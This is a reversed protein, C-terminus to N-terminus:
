GTRDAKQQTFHSVNSLVIKYTKSEYLRKDFVKTNIAYKYKGYDRLASATEPKLVSQFVTFGHTLQHDYAEQATAEAPLFLDDGNLTSLDRTDCERMYYTMDHARREHDVKAAHVQPELYLLQVHRVWAAVAYLSLITFLPFDLLVFRVFGRGKSSNNDSSNSSKKKISGDSAEETQDDYFKPNMDCVKSPSQTPTPTHDGDSDYSPDDM